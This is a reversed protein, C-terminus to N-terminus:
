ADEEEWDDGARRWDPLKEAEALAHAHMLFAYVPALKRFAEALRDALNRSFLRRRDRSFSLATVSRRELWDRQKAPADPHRSRKYCDGELSFGPLGELAKQAERYRKDGALVLARVREMVKPPTTYYGCGFHHFEPTFEFFWVPHVMGKSRQFVFWSARKFMTKDRSFRTDRFIRCVARKPELILLPDIRLMTPILAGALELMPQRVQEEYEARHADFWERSNRRHNEDLFRLSKESFAM